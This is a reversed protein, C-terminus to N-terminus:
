KRLVQGDRAVLCAAVIDDNMDINLAGEKPLVLKLFDLVNRAYLSSADAAVLAPLNTEGVLTVGHKIVTRGPETLPCNGGQPAALDVIVSGAKMSRVMDETVLVPAPRGPILATTIVIDAAAVRKAVEAKQRDLWSQPMPKAYGGSGQAAEKEEDTDYSVDIFKAGLSEVQEKVSPRVDSAEIVAGLRKATAIAQLGAVGM